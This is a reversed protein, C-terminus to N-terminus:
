PEIGQRDEGSQGPGAHTAGIGLTALMAPTDIHAEFRVVKNDRITLIHVEDIDFARGTAKVTGATRGVQVVKEGAPFVVELTVKSSIHSILKGFFEGVGDHGHFEGGWPLEPTQRVEVNADFIEFITALDAAAMAEYLRRVLSVNPHEM